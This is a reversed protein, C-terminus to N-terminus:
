MQEESRAAATPIPLTLDDNLVPTGRNNRIRVNRVFEAEVLRHHPIDLPSKVDGDFKLYAEDAEITNIEPFKSEPPQGPPTTNSFFALHLPTFIVRGDVINFHEAALVMNRSHIDLKISWNLEPCGTGFAQQLPLNRPPPPPASFGRDSPYCAEPLPPLGDIGGLLRNYFVFATVFVM